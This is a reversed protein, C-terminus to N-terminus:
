GEIMETKVKRDKSRKKKKDRGGRRRGRKEMM